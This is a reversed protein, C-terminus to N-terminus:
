LPPKQFQSAVGVITASLAALMEDSVLLYAM